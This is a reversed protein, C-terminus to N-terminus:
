AEASVSRGARESRPASLFSDILATVEEPSEMMPLHGRGPLFVEREPRLTRNLERGAKASLVHNSEGWVVMCPPFDPGPEIRDVLGLQVPDSLIEMMAGARGRTNWTAAIAEAGPPQQVLGRWWGRPAYQLAVVFRGFLKPVWFLRSLWIIPRPFIALVRSLRGVAGRGLTQASAPNIIVMRDFKEPRRDALLLMMASGMCNGVVSIRDFGLHDIFASLMAAYKEVSYSSSPIDSEGLGIHDLSIVEHKDRLAEAQQVWSEKTSGMNSFFLVPSGSGQRTYALRDGQFTFYLTPVSM